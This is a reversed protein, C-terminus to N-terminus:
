LERLMREFVSVRRVILVLQGPKPAETYHFKQGCEDNSLIGSRLVQETLFLRLPCTEIEPGIALAFRDPAPDIFQFTAVGNSDTWLRIKNVNPNPNGRPMTILIQSGSIPKGNSQDLILLSIRGSSPGPSVLAVGATHCVPTTWVLLLFVTM